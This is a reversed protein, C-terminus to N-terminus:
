VEEHLVQDIAKQFVAVEQAGSLALKRNFVFFPVGRVGLAMAEEQDAIVEKYFQDGEFLSALTASNLGASKGIEILTSVNAVDKGETFYAAFLAQSVANQKGKSKALHLLRHADMSNALKSDDLRFTIGVEAAMVTVRQNMERAQELSWGKVEALYENVNKSADSKLEPNLQYSKWELSVSDNLGMEQLAMELKRKGIYCFPCMIDSWVEIQLTAASNSTKM